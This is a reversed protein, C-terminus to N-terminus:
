FLPLRLGHVGSAPGRQTPSQAYTAEARKKLSLSKQANAISIAACFSTEIQAESAGMAALFVGRLRHLEAYCLRQEFREALAEAENIAELAEFTRDALYLAEAKQALQVPVGLATGTARYDRIGHEIWAIGETTNGSASLAWGRLIAGTAMWHAFNHRTSLEILDSALRVVEARNYENYALGAAWGLTIALAHMDNVEKALSIAEALKAQCSAIEGLHWASVTLYCLCAVGHTYPDETHSQANGSRWIQVGRMAAQRSAEFDGSFLLTCALTRYAGIMLAADNEKQALSHVREAIQMAGSM